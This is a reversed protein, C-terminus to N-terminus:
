KFALTRIIKLSLLCSNQKGGRDQREKVINGWMEESIGLADRSFKLFEEEEEEMDVEVEGDGAITPKDEEDEEDGNVGDESDTEDDSDVGDFKDRMLIPKRVPKPPAGPVPATTESELTTPKTRQSNSHYSSPMQGYESSPLPPVLKLLAEARRKLDESSEQPPHAPQTDSDQDSNSDSDNSFEGESSLVESHTSRM